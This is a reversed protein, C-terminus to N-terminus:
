TAELTAAHLTDGTSQAVLMMLACRSSLRPMGQRRRRLSVQSAIAVRRSTTRHAMQSSWCWMRCKRGTGMGLLWRCSFLCPTCLFRGDMPSLYEQCYRVSLDDWPDEACIFTTSVSLIQTRAKQIYRPLLQLSPAQPWHERRVEYGKELGAPTHTTSKGQNVKYLTSNFCTFQTGKTCPALNKKIKATSDFTVLGFRPDNTFAKAVASAFKKMLLFNDSTISGSEDLVFTMDVKQDCAARACTCPLM